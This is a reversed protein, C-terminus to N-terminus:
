FIRVRPKDNNIYNIIGKIIHSRVIWKFIKSFESNPGKGWKGNGYKNDLIRKANEKASLKKDVMGKDVWSPKDTSREKDSQRSERAHIINQPADVEETQEPPAKDEAPPAQPAGKSTDGCACELLAWFGIAIMGVFYISDGFPLPGDAM